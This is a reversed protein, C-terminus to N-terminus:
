LEGLEELVGIAEEDGLRAAKHLWKLAEEFDQELGEGTLYMRALEKQAGVEDQEAAKMYWKVAEKSDRRVGIGDMYMDGMATQALAYGQEAAKLYWKAAERENQRVGDGYDYMTAIMYQCNVEGQEAAKLIWKAAERQDKRVGLGDYYMLGLLAQAKLDGQEAAKKYWKEAEKYDQKVGLGEEYMQGLLGQAKAHGMEAAKKYHIAAEEYNEKYAMEEGQSFYDEATMEAKAEKAEPKKQNTGENVLNHKKAYELSIEKKQEDTLETPITVLLVYTVASEVEINYDEFDIRLPIYNNTNINLWNAGQGMYIKWDGNEYETTMIDGKFTANPDAFKLIVLGCLDGNGDKVPHEIATKEDNDQRFQDVKLIQAQLTSFGILLLATALLRKM